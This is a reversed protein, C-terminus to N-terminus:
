KRVNRYTKFGRTHPGPTAIYEM